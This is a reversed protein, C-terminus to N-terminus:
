IADLISNVGSAWSYHLLGTIIYAILHFLISDSLASAAAPSPPVPPAVWAPSPPLVFWAWGLPTPFPVLCAVLIKKNIYSLSHISSLSRLYIPKLLGNLRPEIKKTNSTLLSIMGLQLFLMYPHNKLLKLGLICYLIIM